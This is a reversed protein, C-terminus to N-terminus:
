LAARLREALDLVVSVPLQGTGQYNTSLRGYDRYTTYGYAGERAVEDAESRIAIVASSLATLAHLREGEDAIADIRSALLPALGRVTTVQVGDRTRTRLKPTIVSPTDWGPYTVTYTATLDVPSEKQRWTSIAIRHALSAATAATTNM